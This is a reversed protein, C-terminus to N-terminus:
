QWGMDLTFRQGSGQGQGSSWRTGANGDLANAPNGGGETRSTGATWGGRDLAAEGNPSMWGEQLLWGGLKTGRLNVGSGTGSNNKLVTGSAKLFDSAGLSANAARATMTIPTSFLLGLLTVLALVRSFIAQKNMIM